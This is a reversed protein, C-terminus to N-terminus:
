CPFPVQLMGTETPLQEYYDRLYKERTADEDLYLIVCWLMVLLSISVAL